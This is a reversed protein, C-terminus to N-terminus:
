PSGYRVRTSVVLTDYSCTPDGKFPQYMFRAYNWILTSGAVTSTVRWARGGNEGLAGVGASVAGGSLSDNVAWNTSTATLTTTVGFNTTDMAFEIVALSCAQGRQTTVQWTVERAARCPVFPSKISDRANTGLTGCPKSTLKVWKYSQVSPFQGRSQAPMFLPSLLVLLLAVARLRRMM